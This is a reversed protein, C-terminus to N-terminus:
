RHTRLRRLGFAGAGAATVFLSMVLLVAKSGDTQPDKAAVLGANGVVPAGPAEPQQGLMLSVFSALEGGAGSMAQVFAPATMGSVYLSPYWSARQVNNAILAPSSSGYRLHYHAADGEGHALTLLVYQYDACSADSTEFTHWAFASGNFSAATEGAYSYACATAGSFRISDATVTINSFGTDLMEELVKRVDSPNASIETAIGGVLGNTASDSMFVDASVWDGAWPTLDTVEPHDGHGHEDDDNAHGNEDDDAHDHGHSSVGEVLLLVDDGAGGQIQITYTGAAAFDYAVWTAIAPCGEIATSSGAPALAFGSGDSVTLTVASGTFLAYTRAEPVVYRVFGAGGAPLAVEFLTHTGELVPADGPSATAANALPEDDFHRCAHGTDVAPAGTDDAAALQPFLAASALSVVAFAAMAYRGPRGRFRLPSVNM